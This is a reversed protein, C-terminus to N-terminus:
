REVEMLMAADMSGRPSATSGAEYMSVEGVLGRLTLTDRVEAEATTEKEVRAGEQEVAAAVEFMTEVGTCESTPIPLIHPPTNRLPKGSRSSSHRYALYTYKHTRTHTHIYMRVYTRAHAHTHTRTNTHANTCTHMHAHTTTHTHVHM